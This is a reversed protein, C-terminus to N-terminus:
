PRDKKPLHQYHHVRPNKEFYADRDAQVKAAWTAREEANLFSYGRQTRAVSASVPPKIKM